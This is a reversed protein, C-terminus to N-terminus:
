RGIRKGPIGSISLQPETNNRALRINMDDGALQQRVSLVEPRYQLAKGLATPIDVDLLTGSPNPEETLDLDLARINPDVDAGIIRRFQDETQKVAYEAQIESVRRSAVQSESRYIDLPPLAGLQRSHKDREYSKQAEDLSEKQVALNRRAQVVNWYQTVVQFIIDNVEAEFNARTQALTRQAIKERQAEGSPIRMGARM